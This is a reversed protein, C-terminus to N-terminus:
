EVQMERKSWDKGLIVAESQTGEGLAINAANQCITNFLVALILNM